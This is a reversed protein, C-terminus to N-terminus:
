ASRIVYGDERRGALFNVVQLHDHKLYRSRGHTRGGKVTAPDLHMDSDAIGEVQCSMDSLPNSKQVDAVNYM